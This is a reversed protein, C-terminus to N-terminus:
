KENNKSIKNLFKIIDFSDDQGPTCSDWFMKSLEQQDKELQELERKDISISIDSINQKKKM